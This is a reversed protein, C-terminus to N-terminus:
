YKWHFSPLKDSNKINNKAPLKNQPDFNLLQIFYPTVNKGKWHYLIYENLQVTKMVGTTQSNGM